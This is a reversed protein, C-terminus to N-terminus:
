GVIEDPQFFRAIEAKASEPGDSAHLINRMKDEGMDGRITGAPAKTSDTPGLIERLHDVADDRELIAVIVPSSSMFGEVEPFFPLDAIHAYHERLIDPGLQMMKIARFEFHAAELRRMTEGVLKKTMCDPKFIVLTREM